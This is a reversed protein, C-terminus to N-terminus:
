ANWVPTSTKMGAAAGGSPVIENTLAGRPSVVRRCVILMGLQREEPCRAVTVKLSKTWSM